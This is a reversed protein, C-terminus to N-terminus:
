GRAITKFLLIHHIFVSYISYHQCKAHMTKSYNNIIILKMSFFSPGSEEQWMICRWWCSLYLLWFLGWNNIIQPTPGVSNPIQSSFSTNCQELSVILSFEKYYEEEELYSIKKCKHFTFLTHKMGQNINKIRPSQYNATIM